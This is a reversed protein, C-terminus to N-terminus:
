GKIAGSTMGSIIYKQAIAYVAVVPLAILVVDAFVLNWYSNYQGFFFYVTLPMTFKTPSSLFYLAIDFNNWVSLFQVIFVTFTVPKVIPFIVKFFLSTIDCGDIVAAEDIEAPITSFFGKYLMASFPLGFTIYIMIVGAFSSQLHIRQLIWFIPVIAPPVILGAIMLFNILNSFKGKRRQLIFGIMASFLVIFVVAIVTIILSNIFASLIKGETFVRQYNDIIKLKTPFTLLMDAAENKTKFSNIVIFYLPILVIGSLLISFFEKIFQQMPKQKM